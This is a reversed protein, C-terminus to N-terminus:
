EEPAPKGDPTVRVEKKKGAKTVKAEYAVLQDNQHIAEVKVVRGEKAIANRAAAPVSSLSVQQEVEIVKGDPDISVDKSRGNVTMEVEYETKGKEEEKIYRRVTAGASQQDATKRVADPLDTRKIAHENGQAWALAALGVFLFATLSVRKM